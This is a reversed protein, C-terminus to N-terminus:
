VSYITPLTLHTYSVPEPINSKNVTSALLKDANKKTNSEEVNVLEVIQRITQVIPTLESNVMRKEM